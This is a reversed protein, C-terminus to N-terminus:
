PVLIQTNWKDAFTNQLVVKDIINKDENISLIFWIHEILGIGGDAVIELFAKQLLITLIITVLVNIKSNNSLVDDTSHFYSSEISFLVTTSAVKSTWNCHLLHRPKEVQPCRGDRMTCLHALMEFIYVVIVLRPFWWFVFRMRLVLDYWLFVLKLNINGLSSVSVLIYVGWFLNASRMGIEKYKLGRIGTFDLSM